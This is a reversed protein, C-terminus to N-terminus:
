ILAKQNSGGRCLQAWITSFWQTQSNLTAAELRIQLKLFETFTMARSDTKARHRWRRLTWRMSLSPSTQKGHIRLLMVAANIKTKKLHLTKNFLVVPLIWNNRSLTTGNFLSSAASLRGGDHKLWKWNIEKWNYRGSMCINRPPSSFGPHLVAQQSQARM